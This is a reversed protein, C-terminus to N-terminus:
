VLVGDEDEEEEDQDGDKREMMSKVLISQV